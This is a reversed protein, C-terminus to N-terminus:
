GGAHPRFFVLPAGDLIEVRGVVRQGIHVGTTELLNSVIRPGSDLEVLIVTYPVVAAFARDYVHHYVCFSWVTGTGSDVTWSGGPRLCEPCRPAEPYRVYGCGDCRQFRLIGDRWQPAGTRDLGLRKAVAAAAVRLDGSM